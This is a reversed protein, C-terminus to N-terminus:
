KRLLPKHVSDNLVATYNIKKGYIRREGKEHCTICLNASFMRKLETMELARSGERVVASMDNKKDSNQVESLADLPKDCTECIVASTVDLGNKTSIIGQGLGAFYPNTHCESCTVAKKATNHSYFPAFKLKKKVRTYRHKM